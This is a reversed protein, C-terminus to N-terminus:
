SPQNFVRKALALSNQAVTSEPNLRKFACASKFSENWDAKQNQFFAITSAYELVPIDLQLLERAIPEFPKLLRAAERGDDTMEFARLSQLAPAPVSYSFQQGVANGEATEELLNLRVLQDTAQAVDTSYPGYHHLFFDADLPCGACKLLYVVKQMRKRSQLTGAWQVLKGLQYHNM